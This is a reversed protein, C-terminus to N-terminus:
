IGVEWWTLKLALEKDNQLKLEKIYLHTMVDDQSHQIPKISLICLVADVCLLCEIYYINGNHGFNKFINYIVAITEM